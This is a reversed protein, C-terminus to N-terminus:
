LGKGDRVKIEKKYVENLYLLDEAIRSLRNQVERREKDLEYLRDELSAVAHSNSTYAREGDCVGDKSMPREFHTCLPDNCIM